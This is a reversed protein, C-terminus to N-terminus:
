KEVFKEFRMSRSAKILFDTTENERIHKKLDSLADETSSYYKVNKMKNKLFDYTTKIEPGILFTNKPKLKLIQEALKKHYIASYKGLEKMDGLILSYKKSGSIENLAYEMSQPNANYADLIIKSRKRKIIQMRLPVGKFRKIAKFFVSSPIKLLASVIFAAAANLYNHKIHNALKFRYKKNRYQFLSYNKEFNIVLDNEKEFGFSLVNKLKKLKKLYDNDGNIIIKGDKKIEKIVETETKYINEMTKFFELHEPAITTIVAMHPNIIKALEGVEGKKSSGIEFVGYKHIKAANLVSIPLGYENNLNGPNYVTPKHSSLVAYIMEKTTTKGNSGTVSILKIDFRKLHWEALTHLAKLTDKVYIFFDLKEIHKQDLKKSSIVGRAGLSVAQKVFDNGDFNKGKLAWFIEGKKLKRSDTVFFDIEKDKKLILIKGKVIECLKSPKIELNM